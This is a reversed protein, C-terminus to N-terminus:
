NENKYKEYYDIFYETPLKSYKKITDWCKEIEFKGMINKDCIYCFIDATTIYKLKYKEVYFMIDTLNNSCIIGNYLVSYAICAAEGQGIVKIGKMQSKNTMEFFINWEESGIEFNHIVIQKSFKLSDFRGKYKPKNDKGIYQCLEDYVKKPVILKKFVKLLIGECNAHFFTSLCDTDFIYNNTSEIIKRM